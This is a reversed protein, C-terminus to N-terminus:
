DRNKYLEAAQHIAGLFLFFYVWLAAKEVGTVPPTLDVRFITLFQTLLLFFLACVFSAKAKFKFLRVTIIWGILLAFTILDSSKSLFFIEYLIGSFIIILLLYRLKSFKSLLKNKNVM